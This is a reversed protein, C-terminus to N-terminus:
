ERINKSVLTCKMVCSYTDPKTVPINLRKYTCVTSGAYDPLGRYDSVSKKDREANDLTFQITNDSLSGM